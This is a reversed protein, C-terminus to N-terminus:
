YGEGFMNSPDRLDILVPGPEAGAIEMINRPYNQPNNADVGYQGPDTLPTSGAGIISAMSNPDYQENVVDVNYQGPEVRRTPEFGTTIM